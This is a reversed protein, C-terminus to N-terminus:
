AADLALGNATFRSDRQIVDVVQVDFAEGASGGEPARSAPARLSATSSKM